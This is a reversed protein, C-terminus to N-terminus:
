LGIKRGGSMQLFLRPDVGVAKGSGDGSKGAAACGDDTV